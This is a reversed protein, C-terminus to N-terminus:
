FMIIMDTNTCMVHFLNYIINHLPIVCFSVFAFIRPFVCANPFPHSVFRILCGFCWLSFRNMLLLMLFQCLHALEWYKLSARTSSFKHLWYKRKQKLAACPMCYVIVTAPHWSGLISLSESGVTGCISVEPRFVGGRWFLLQPTNSWMCVYSCHHTWVFCLSHTLFFFLELDSVSLRCSELSFVWISYWYPWGGVSSVVNMCLLTWWVWRAALIITPCMWHSFPRCAQQNPTATRYYYVMSRLVSSHWWQCMWRFPIFVVCQWAVKCKSSTIANQSTPYSLDILSCCIQRRTRVQVWFSQM